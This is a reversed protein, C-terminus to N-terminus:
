GSASAPKRAASAPAGLFGAMRSAIRLMSSSCPRQRRLGLWRRTIISEIFAAHWPGNASSLRADGIALLEQALGLLIEHDTSQGAALEFLDALQSQGLWRLSEAAPLYLDTRGPDVGMASTVLM